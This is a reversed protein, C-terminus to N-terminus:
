KEKLHCMECEETVSTAIEGNHCGGCFKGRAMNSMTLMGLADSSGKEMAFFRDHCERCDPFLDQHMFHDFRVVGLGETDKYVFIGEEGTDTESDVKSIGLVRILNKELVDLIKLTYGVNHVGPVQTVFHYNYRAQELLRKFGPERNDAGVKAEAEKIKKSVEKIRKQLKKKWQELIEGYRADNHCEICRTKVSALVVRGGKIGDTDKATEHCGICDVGAQYMPSPREKVGIGGRGSYLLKVRSHKALHCSSCDSGAMKAKQDVKHIIDDHCLFCELHQAIHIKHLKVREGRVVVPEKFAHCDFCRSEKVAGTGKVVHSHCEYCNVKRESFKEHEINRKGLPIVEPLETHCMVCKDDPRDRIFTKDNFEQLHCLYCNTKNVSIHKGSKLPSHCATCTLDSKLGEVFHPKHDFASKGLFPKTKGLESKVHCGKQLCSADEVRAFPKPSYTGTLYMAVLGIAKFKGEITGAIGPKFHCVTCNVNNHRSEQWSQYYNEMNHCNRCFSPSSSYRIFGVSIFLIIVLAGALITLTSFRKKM